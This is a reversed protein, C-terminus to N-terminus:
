FFEFVNKLNSKYERSHIEIKLSETYNRSISDRKMQNLCIKHSEFSSQETM